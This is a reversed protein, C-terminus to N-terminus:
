ESYVHRELPYKDICDVLHRLIHGERELSKIICRPENLNYALANTRSSLFFYADNTNNSIFSIYFLYLFDEYAVSVILRDFDLIDDFRGGNQWRSKFM